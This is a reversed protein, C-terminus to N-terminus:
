VYECFYSCHYGGISLYFGKNGEETIEINAQFTLNYIMADFNTILNKNLDILM